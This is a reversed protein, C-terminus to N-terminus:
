ARQVYARVVVATRYRRDRSRANFNIGIRRDFEIKGPKYGAVQTDFQDEAAALVIDRPLMAPRPLIASARVKGGVTVKCYWKEGSAV